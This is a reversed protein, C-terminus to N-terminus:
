KARAFKGFLRSAAAEYAAHALAPETFLGLYHVKGQKKIVSFYRGDNKRRVGKFGTTNNKQLGKNAQNLTATALRLNAIRNDAGDGNAHDIQDSPWEGFHVLWIM